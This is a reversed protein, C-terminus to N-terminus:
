NTLQKGEYAEQLKQLDFKKMQLFSRTVREVKEKDSNRLMEHLMTPAVQWSVGFMDKLWGCQQAKPDGGETLTTWFYDIEEQSDCEVLLSVAENFSFDHDLASEMAAFLRGGLLFDAYTIAEPRNPEQGEGYRAVQKIESDDFVSTYFDLAEEAKGYVEGTFMLAPMIKQPSDGKAVIVQWSLGYRDETWGYKESFPYKDLPMLTKGGESLSGWLEDVEDESRCNVMFSISPNFKFHPGGNLGIFKQGALEFDVTMIKGEPQGHMEFGAKGYRTISGIGSDAFLSTYFKAAEGAQDDFWLHPIIKQKTNNM